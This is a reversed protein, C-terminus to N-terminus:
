LMSVCQGKRGVGKTTAAIKFLEPFQAVTKQVKSKQWGLSKQLDSMLVECGALHESLIDRDKQAADLRSKELVELTSLGIWRFLEVAATATEVTLERSTPDEAIQLCVAVRIAQERWRALESAFRAFCGTRWDVITNHFERFVERAEEGCVLEIGAAADFRAKLIDRIRQTYSAAVHENPLRREGEEKQPVVDINVVMLRPLLGRSQAEENSNIEDFISPQVLLLGGLCPEKLSVSGGGLNSRSQAYPDHSYGSLWLDMDTGEKRYIGLAVRVVEAAESSQVWLTEDDALSLDRALASTTANGSILEPVWKLQREVSALQLSKLSLEDADIPKKSHHLKKIEAELKAKQALLKPRTEQEWTSRRTEQLEYIPAAVKTAISKGSGPEMVLLMYLNGRTKHGDVVSASWRKGLAGSVVALCCLAPLEVPVRHIRAMDQAYSRLVSPLLHLPFDGKEPLATGNAITAPAINQEAFFAELVELETNQTM